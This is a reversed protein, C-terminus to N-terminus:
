KNKNIKKDIIYNKRGYKKEKAFYKKNSETRCIM